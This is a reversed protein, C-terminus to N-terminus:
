SFYHLDSDVNDYGRRNNGTSSSGDESGNGLIVQKDDNTSDKYDFSKTKDHFNELYFDSNEIKHNEDNEDESEKKDDFNNGSDYNTNDNAYEDSKFNELYFHYNGTAENNKNNENSENINEDEWQINEKDDFHNDNDYNGDVIDLYEGSKNEDSNRNDDFNNDNGYSVDAGNQFEDSKHNDLYLENINSTDNNEEDDSKGKKEIDDTEDFHNGNDYGDDADNLYEDSKSNENNEYNEKKDWNKLSIDNKDDFNNDNDYNADVDKLFEDSKHNNRYFEIIKSMDKDKKNDKDDNNRTIKKEIDDRDDFHNDNDYSTDTNDLDEYYKYDDLYIENSKSSYNKESDGKDQKQTDDKDSFYNDNDYTIHDNYQYKDFKKVDLDHNDAKLKSSRHDVVDDLEKLYEDDRFYNINGKADEQFKDVTDQVDYKKDIESNELIKDIYFKSIKDDNVSHRLYDDRAPNGSVKITLIVCALVTCIQKLKM